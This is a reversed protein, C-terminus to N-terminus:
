ENTTLLRELVAEISDKSSQDWVIKGDRGVLWVEPIANVQLAVLMEQAGYGQPWTLGEERVFRKSELLVGENESTLGIFKVGRPAYTAHLKVLEPSLQRCPGCWYAWCDVLWIQGRLESSTPGPGNIWGDVKLEPMVTGVRSGGGWGHPVGSASPRFFASLIAGAAAVTVIAMLLMSGGFSPPPVTSPDETVSM